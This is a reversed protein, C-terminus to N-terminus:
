KLCAENKSIARITTNAEKGNGDFIVINDGVQKRMVRLCHHAEGGRLTPNEDWQEPLLFFRDM